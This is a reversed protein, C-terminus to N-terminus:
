PENVFRQSSLDTKAKKPYWLFKTKDTVTQGILKLFDNFDKETECHIMLSRFANQFQGYDPMNDWEKGVNEIVTVGLLNRDFGTLDVSEENLLKLEEIVLQLDIEALSSVRNDALRWMKEQEPTLPRTDHAGHITNGVDDIIWIPPLDKNESWVLWRGHGAVIVGEQNVEVSQRWGVERVIDALLKLQKEDHVKANKKYPKVDHITLM